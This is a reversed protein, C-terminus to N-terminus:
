SKSAKRSLLISQLLKMIFDLGFQLFMDLLPHDSEAEDLAAEAEEPTAGGSVLQDKWRKRQAKGIRKLIPGGHLGQETAVPPDLPIDQENAM